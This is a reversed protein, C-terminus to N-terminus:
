SDKHEPCYAKEAALQIKINVLDIDASQEATLKGQTILEVGALSQNKRIEEKDLGKTLLKCYEIGEQRAKDWGYLENFIKKHRTNIENSKSSNLLENLRNDFESNPNSCGYNIILLLLILNFRQVYKILM